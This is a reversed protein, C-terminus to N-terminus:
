RPKEVQPNDAYPAFDIVIRGDTAVVHEWFMGNEDSGGPLYRRLRLPEFGEVRRCFWETAAVCGMRRKRSKWEVLAEDISM